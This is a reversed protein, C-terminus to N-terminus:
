LQEIVLTGAVEVLKGSAEDKFYWGDSQAQNSVNGTAIWQHIIKGDCGYLTVRHRSGLSKMQSWTADKCSCVGATAMLIIVIMRITKEKM